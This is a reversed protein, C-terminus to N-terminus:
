LTWAMGFSVTPRLQELSGDHRVFIADASHDVRSEIRLMVSPVPKYELAVAAEILRETPWWLRGLDFSGTPRLLIDRDGGQWFLGGRAGLRWADNLKYRAWVNTAAWLGMRGDGELTWSEFGGNLQAALELDDNVKASAFGDLLWGRVQGAGTRDLDPRTPASSLLVQWLGWDREGYVRAIFTSPINSASLRTWGGYLGIEATTKAGLPHSLRAGAVYFPMAVNLLAGSWLWNDRAYVSELGIPSGFLGAELWTGAGRRAGECNGPDDLRFGANAERMLSWDVPGAPEGSWIVSPTWGRWIRMVARSRRGTATLGIMAQSLGFEAHRPDFIRGPITGDPPRNADWAFFAEGTADLEILPAGTGSADGALRVAAVAPSASILACLVLLSCAVLLRRLSRLRNTM